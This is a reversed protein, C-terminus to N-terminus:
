FEIDFADASAEQPGWLAEGVRSLASGDLMLLHFGDEGWHIASERVYTMTEGCPAIAALTARTVDPLGLGLVTRARDGVDDRAVTGGTEAHRLDRLPVYGYPIAHCTEAADGGWGLGTESGTELGTESGTEIDAAGYKDRLATEIVDHPLPADPSVLRRMIALVPGDPAYSAITIAEAGDRLLHMRQYGLVPSRTDSAGADGPPGTELVAEVGDLGAILGSAKAMDMGLRVGLLDRESPALDLGIGAPWRAVPAPDPAPDPGPDPAAGTVAGPAPAPGGTVAAVAVAPTPGAGPAPAPAAIDAAPGAAAIDRTAGGAEAVLTAAGRARILVGDGAAAGTDGLIAVSQVDVHLVVAGGAHARGEHLGDEIVLLASRRACGGEPRARSTLAVYRRELDFAGEGARSLENAARLDAQLKPVEAAMADGLHLGGRSLDHIGGCPGASGALPVALRDGMAAAKAALFSRFSPVLLDAAAGEPLPAGAEFFRPVEASGEDAGRAAGRAAEHAAEHAHADAMMALLAADGVELGERIALLDVVHNSFPVRREALAAFAEPAFRRDPRPGGDPAGAAGTEVKRHELLTPRGESARDGPRYLVVEAVRATMRYGTGNAGRLDVLGMPELRLRYQATRNGSEVIARATETPVAVPGFPAQGALRVELRTGSGIRPQWTIGAGDAGGLDFTGAALDYMGLDLAGRLWVPRGVSEGIAQKVAALAAAKEFENAREVAPQAMALDTLIEPDDSLSVLAGLVPGLGDRQELADLSALLTETDSAAPEAPAAGPDILVADPRLEMLPQTLSPDVFLALRKLTGQGVRHSPVRGGAHRAELARADVSWDLESWWALTISGNQPETRARLAQAEAEPIELRDPLTGFREASHIGAWDAADQAHPLQAVRFTASGGSGGPYHLPFSQTAFDYEGLRVSATTLVPLPWSPIRAAIAPWYTESFARQADRRAFEDQFVNDYRGASAIIRGAEQRGIHGAASGQGFFATRQAEPLLAAAVGVFNSGTAAWDPNAGLYALLNFETWGAGAGTGAGLLVHDDMVPLGLSRALALATGPAAPAAAGADLSWVHLAASTQSVPLPRNRDEMALYHLSASDLEFTAPLARGGPTRRAFSEVSEDVGLRTIRGRLVQFLRAGAAREAADGDLLAKAEERTAPLMDVGRAGVAIAFPGLGISGSAGRDYLRLGEGPEFQSISTPVYIVVPIPAEPTVQPLTEAEALVARRFAQRRDEKELDNLQHFATQAARVDGAGGAALAEFHMQEAQAPTLANPDIRIGQLRLMRETGAPARLFRGQHVHLTAPADFDTRSLPLGNSPSLGLTGAALTAALGPGDALGPGGQGTLPAHGAAALTGRVTELSGGVALLRGSMTTELCAVDGKCTDRRQLFARQQALMAPDSAGNSASWARALERDLAALRPAACIATESATSAQGCDFSPRVPQAAAGFPAGFSAPSPTQGAVRVAGGPHVRRFLAVSDSPTAVGAGQVLGADRRFADLASQTRGGWVGDAPGADYGLASLYTQIERTEARRIAAPEGSRDAADSLLAARQTETLTGTPAFGQGTQYAVIAERTRQGPQGDVPGADLGLDNLAAQTEMVAREAASPGSRAPGARGRSQTQAQTQGQRRADNQRNREMENAIIGIGIGLIANRVREDARTEAAGALVLSASMTFISAFRAARAFVISAM